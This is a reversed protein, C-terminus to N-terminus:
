SIADILELAKSSTEEDLPASGAEEAAAQQGEESLVYSLYGKVLEAEAADEYTPCALLYSVLVIPYVGSETTDRALDVAMDSESAGAPESVSLIQAAAEASPEVFEEGVKVAVSSLGNDEAASHDVFGITGEGAQVAGVVGSTGDGAEGGVGEPWVGDAEHPWGGVEELYATFNEQTGSDDARHVPTIATDPLETGENLATIAPDNWTTIEGLFIKSITAADLQVSDVDPLNYVVAIPSVYGPVQIPAEGSCRETAATLEGEDDDLASDTGAFAYGGSIFNDRGGGSGVPEYNVTLDPNADQIGATWAAQAKEQSTAGGGQLTGSLSGAAEGGDTESAAGENGAGCATLAFALAAVGPVIARRISTSKM